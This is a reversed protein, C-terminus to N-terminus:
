IFFLLVWGLLLILGVHLTIRLTYAIATTVFDDLDLEEIKLDKEGSIRSFVWGIFMNLGAAQVLSIAPTHFIPVFFWMYLTKLAFAGLIVWYIFILLLIILNKLTKM